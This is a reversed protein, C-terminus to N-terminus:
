FGRSVQPEARRVGVARLVRVDITCLRVIVNHRPRAIAPPKRTYQYALTEVLVNPFEKEIEEAVANVFRIVPGSPSGEREELERCRDCQCGRGNDNQSVSIMTAGPNKRLRELVNRVLERRMPENTLCLQGVKDQRKGQYLCYWDPHQQFYKEAPLLGEIQSFTHVWGLLTNRGGYEEPIEYGAYLDYGSLKLRAPFAGPAPSEHRPSAPTLPPPKM